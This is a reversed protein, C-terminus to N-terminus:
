KNTLILILLIRITSWQVVPAFTEFYNIGYEQQNGRVSFRSRYRYAVADQTHKLKFAGTEKLVKIQSTREVLSWTDMHKLNAFEEKMAEIYKDAEM